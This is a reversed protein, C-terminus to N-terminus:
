KEILELVTQAITGSELEYITGAGGLEAYSRLSMLLRDTNAQIEGDLLPNYFATWMTEAEAFGYSVIGVLGGALTFVLIEPFPDTLYLDLFGLEKNNMLEITMLVAFMERGSDTDLYDRLSFNKVQPFIKEQFKFENQQTTQALAPAPNLLVGLLLFFITAISLLRM